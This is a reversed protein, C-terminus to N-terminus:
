EDVEAEIEIVYGQRTLEGIIFVADSLKDYWLVVNNASDDNLKVEIRYRMRM